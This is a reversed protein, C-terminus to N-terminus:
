SFSQSKERYQRKISAISLFDPPLKNGKCHCVLSRMLSQMKLEMYECLLALQILSESKNFNISPQEEVMDVDNDYETPLAAPEISTPGEDSIKDLEQNQEASKIKEGDCHLLEDGEDVPVESLCNSSEHGKPRM